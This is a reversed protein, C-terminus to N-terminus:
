RPAHLSQTAANNTEYILTPRTSAIARPGAGVGAVATMVAAVMADFAARGAPPKRDGDYPISVILTFDDRAISIALAATPAAPLM